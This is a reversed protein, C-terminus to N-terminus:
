PQRLNEILLWVDNRSIRNSYRTGFVDNMDEVQKQVDDLAESYGYKLASTLRAHVIATIDAEYARDFSAQTPEDNAKVLGTALLRRALYRELHSM